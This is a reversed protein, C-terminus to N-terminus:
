YYFLKLTGLISESEFLVLRSALVFVSSLLLAWLCVLGVQFGNQYPSGQGLDGLRLFLFFPLERTGSCGDPFFFEYEERNKPTKPSWRSYSAGREERWGVLSSLSTMLAVLWVEPSLGVSMKFDSHLSVEGLYRGELNKRGVLLRGSPFCFWWPWGQGWERYGSKDVVLTWVLCDVSWIGM